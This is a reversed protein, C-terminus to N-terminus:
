NEYVIITPYTIRISLTNSTAKLFPVEINTVLVHSLNASLVVTPYLGGTDEQAFSLSQWNIIRCNHIDWIMYLSKNFTHLLFSSLVNISCWMWKGPVPSNNAAQLWDWQCIKVDSNRWMRIKNVSKQIWQKTFM